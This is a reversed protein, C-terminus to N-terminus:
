SIWVPVKAWEKWGSVTKKYIFLIGENYYSRYIFGYITNDKGQVFFPYTLKIFGEVDQSEDAGKIKRSISKPNKLKSPDLKHSKLNRFKQNIEKIKSPNFVTDLEVHKNRELVWNKNFNNNNISEYSFKKGHNPLSSFPLTEHHLVNDGYKEINIVEYAAELNNSDELRTIGCSSFILLLLNSAIIKLERSVPNVQIKLKM